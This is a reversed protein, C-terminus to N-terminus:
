EKAALDEAVTRQVPVLYARLDGVWQLAEVTGVPVAVVELRARDAAEGEGARESVPRV